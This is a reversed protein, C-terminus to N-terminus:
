NEYDFLAMFGNEMHSTMHCHWLSKGPKDAILDVSAMQMPPIVVVDKILGSLDKGMYHTVEVYHRHLHLPHLGKSKNHYNLRYRKGTTLMFPDIEPWTKGNITWRSLKGTKSKIEEFVMDINEDPEAAKSQLAFKGLNWHSDKPSLWQADGKSNAYEVIIGIGKRRAPESYEGFIWKGPNNMEIIVDVREGPGLNFREMEAQRPVPNGDMAVVRSTHGSLSIRKGTSPGSNLIRFMVREGHKVRIPEGHGLMRGNITGLNHAIEGNVVSAGWEHISMFVERDYDGPDNLPEVYIIGNMGSYTGQRFDGSSGAHSHYWRTGAPKPIFRYSLSQGPKIMPSGQQKAGDVDSPLYLGHWHVLEDRSTNNTVQITTTTSEKLRILPGPIEGNFALTEILVRDAIEVKEMAIKLHYDAAPADDPNLIGLPYEKKPIVGLTNFVAQESTNSIFSTAMSPMSFFSTSLVSSSALQLFRRRNFESM